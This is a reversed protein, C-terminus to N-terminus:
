AVMDLIADGLFELRQNHCDSQATGQVFSPHTLALELLDQKKFRYGIQKQLERLQNKVM